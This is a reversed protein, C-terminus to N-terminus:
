SGMAHTPFCGSNFPNAAVGAMKLKIAALQNIPLLNLHEIDNHNMSESPSLPM